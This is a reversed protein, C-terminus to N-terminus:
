SDRRQGMVRLINLFINIFDLYLALAGSIAEKEEQEGDEDGRFMGKIRQTDYATLGVFILIGAYTTLWMVTPNHFWMNVVSAIIIGILAMFCLNGIGTLDTKTLFGYLSM